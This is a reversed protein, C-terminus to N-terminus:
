KNLGDRGFDFRSLTVFRKPKCLTFLRNIWIKKALYMERDNGPLIERYRRFM